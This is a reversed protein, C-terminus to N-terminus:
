VLQELVSTGDNNLSCCIKSVCVIMPRGPHMVALSSVSLGRASVLNFAVAVSAGNKSAQECAHLLAWNDQARQDRSMRCMHWISKCTGHWTHLQSSASRGDLWESGLDGASRAAVCLADLLGATGSSQRLCRRQSQKHLTRRSQSIDPHQCRSRGTTSM